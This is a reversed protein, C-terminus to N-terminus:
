AKTPLTLHTYSVSDIEHEFSDFTNLAKVYESFLKEPVRGKFVPVLAHFKESNKTYGRKLIENVQYGQQLWPLLSNINHLKDVLSIAVAEDPAKRLRERYLRTKEEWPLSKDQQTVFDVLEGVKKGFNRSVRRKNWLDPLDELNDHLYGACITDTDYGHEALKRGVWHLHVVYSQPKVM